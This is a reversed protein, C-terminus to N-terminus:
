RGGDERARNNSALNKFRKASPLVTSVDIAANRYSVGRIGALLLKNQDSVALTGVAKDLM